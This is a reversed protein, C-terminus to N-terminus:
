GVLQDETIWGADLAGLDGAVVVGLAFGAEDRLGLSAVSRLTQCVGVVIAIV